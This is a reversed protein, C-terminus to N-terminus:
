RQANFITRLVYNEDEPGLDLFRCGYVFHDYLRQDIRVIQCALASLETEPILSVRLLFKDGVNRRSGMGVRAGGTSVNLLRCPEEPGDPRDIPTVVAELDVDMRFSARGDRRRVLELHEVHWINGPGNRAMGRAVVAKNTKSSQGRLTVPVAGEAQTLLSGEMFPLLRANNGRLDVLEAALFLRSDDTTVEVRMGPYLDLDETRARLRAQEEKRRKDSRGFLGLLGM